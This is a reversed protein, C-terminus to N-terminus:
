ARQETGAEAVAASSVEPEHEPEPSGPGFSSAETDRGHGPAGLEVARPPLKEEQLAGVHEVKGCNPTSKSDLRVIDSDATNEFVNAAVTHLQEMDSVGQVASLSPQTRSRPPLRMTPIEDVTLFTNKVHVWVGDEAQTVCLDQWLHDDSGQPLPAEHPMYTGDTTGVAVEPDTEDASDDLGSSCHMLLNPM